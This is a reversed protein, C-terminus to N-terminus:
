ARGGAARARWHAAAHLAHALGDADVEPVVLHAGRRVAPSAQGMAVATGAVAMMPLDNLGDGVAVVEAPACGAHAAAVLLAAGKDASRDTVNVFQVDPVSPAHGVGANLGADRLTEVLPAADEGDFLLITAKVVQAEALDVDALLGAPGCGLLDWHRRGGPREDSVYYGDGIYFEAYLDRRACLDRLRQAEEPAMPWTRLETGRDRVQAGNHLVHPGDLGLQRLLPACAAPMRGTALGVRLGVAQCARVADEVAGTAERADGLVTGDVDVVVYRPAAPQWRAFRGGPRLEEPLTGTVTAHSPPM